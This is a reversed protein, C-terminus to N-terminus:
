AKLPATPAATQTGDILRRIRCEFPGHRYLDDALIQGTSRLCGFTEPPLRPRRRAKSMGIYDGHVIETDVPACAGKQHHFEQLTPGKALFDLALLVQVGVAHDLD